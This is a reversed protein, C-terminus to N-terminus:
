KQLGNTFQMLILGLLNCGLHRSIATNVRANYPKVCQDVNNANLSFTFTGTCLSLVAVAAATHM